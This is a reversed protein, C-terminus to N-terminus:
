KRNLNNDNGCYFSIQRRTDDAVDEVPRLIVTREEEEEREENGEEEEIRERTIQRDEEDGRKVTDADFKGREM